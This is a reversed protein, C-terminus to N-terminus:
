DLELRALTIYSVFVARIVAELLPCVKIASNSKFFPTSQLWLSWTFISREFEEPVVKSFSAHLNIIKV